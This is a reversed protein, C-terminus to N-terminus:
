RKGGMDGEALITDTVQVQPLGNGGTLGTSVWSSESICMKAVIVGFPSPLEIIPFPTTM